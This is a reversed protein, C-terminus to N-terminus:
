DWYPTARPATEGKARAVYERRYEYSAPVSEGQPHALKSDLGLLLGLLVRDALSPYNGPGVEDLGDWSFRERAPPVNIRIWGWATGSGGTVSWTKGSRRKLEARITKIAEDREM